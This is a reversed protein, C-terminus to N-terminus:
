QHRSAYAVDHALDEETYHMPIDRRALVDDFEWRSLGALRAAKGLPLLRQTYLGVALELLLRSEAEPPPLRLAQTVENPVELTVIM